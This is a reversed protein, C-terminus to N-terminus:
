RSLVLPSYSGGLTDVVDDIIGEASPVAFDRITVNPWNTMTTWPQMTTPVILGLTRRKLPVAGGRRWRDEFVEFTSCCGYSPPSEETGIADGDFEAEENYFYRYFKFNYWSYGPVFRYRNSRGLEGYKKYLNVTVDDQLKSHDLPLGAADTWVVIAQVTNDAVLPEPLPATLMHAISTLSSEPLDYGYYTPTAAVFHRFDNTDQEDGLNYLPSERWGYPQQDLRMDGFFAVKVFLRNFELGKEVLKERVESELNRAADRVSNILQTMSGTSDVLLVLYLDQVTEVINAESKIMAPISIDLSGNRFISDFEADVSVKATIQREEKIESVDFNTAITASKIDQTANKFFDEAHAISEEKTNGDRFSRAAVLTAADAARSIKTKEQVSRAYDVSFSVTMTLLGIMVGGLISILGKDDKWFKHILNKM